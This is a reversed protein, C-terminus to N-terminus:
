PLGFLVLQGRQQRPVPFGGFCGFCRVGRLTALDRRELNHPALSEEVIARKEEASWCCRLNSCRIV